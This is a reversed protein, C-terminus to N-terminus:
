PVHGALGTWEGCPLPMLKGGGAAPDIPLAGQPDVQLMSRLMRRAAMRPGSVYASCKCLRCPHDDGLAGGDLDESRGHHCIPQACPKHSRDAM